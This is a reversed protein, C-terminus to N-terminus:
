VPILAYLATLLGGVAATIRVNHLAAWTLFLKNVKTEDVPEGRNATKRLAMLQDNVPKIVLLQSICLSTLLPKILRHLRISVTFPIHFLYMGAAAYILTDVSFSSPSANRNLTLSRVKIAATGGTQVFTVLSIVTAIDLVPICAAGLSYARNWLTLRQAISLNATEAAQPEVKTGQQQLFHPNVLLPYALTLGTVLGSTTLGVMASIPALMVARYPPLM